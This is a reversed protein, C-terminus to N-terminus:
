HTHTHANHQARARVIDCQQGLGAHEVRGAFITDCIMIACKYNILSPADDKRLLLLLVSVPQCVNELVLPHRLSIVICVCIQIIHWYIVTHEKGGEDGKRLAPTPLVACVDNNRRASLNNRCVIITHTGHAHARTADLVIDVDNLGSGTLSFNTQSTINALVTWLASVGESKVKGELRGDRDADCGCSAINYHTKRGAGQIGQIDHVATSADDRM